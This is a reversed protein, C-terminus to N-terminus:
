DHDTPQFRGTCWMSKHMHLHFELHLCAAQIPAGITGGSFAQASLSEANWCALMHTLCGFWVCLIANGLTCYLKHHM